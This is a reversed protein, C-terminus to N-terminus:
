NCFTLERIRAFDIRAKERVSLNLGRLSKKM